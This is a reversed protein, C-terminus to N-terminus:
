FDRKKGSNNKLTPKCGEIFSNSNRGCYDPDDIGNEEAWQYSDCCRSWRKRLPPHWPRNAPSTRRAPPRFAPLRCHRVAVPEAMGAIRWINAAPRRGNRTNHGSTRNLACSQRGVIAPLPAPPEADPPLAFGPYRLYCLQVAFGLRNHNGRRATCTQPTFRACRGPKPCSTWSLM